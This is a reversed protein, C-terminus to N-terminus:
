KLLGNKFIIIKIQFIKCYLKVLNSEQIFVGCFMVFDYVLLEKNKVNFYNIKDREVNNVVM